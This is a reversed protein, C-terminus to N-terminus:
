TMDEVTVNIIEPKTVVKVTLLNNTVQHSHCNTTKLERM